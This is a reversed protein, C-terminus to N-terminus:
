LLEGLNESQKEYFTHPSKDAPIPRVWYSYNGQSMADRIEQCKIEAQWRYKFVYARERDTDLIHSGSYYAGFRERGIEYGSIYDRNADVLIVSPTPVQFVLFLIAGFM